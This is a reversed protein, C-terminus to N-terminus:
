YRISIKALFELECEENWARLFVLESRRIGFSFVGAPCVHKEYLPVLTEFLKDICAFCADEM